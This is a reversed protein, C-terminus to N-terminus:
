VILYLGFAIVAIGLFEYREIHRKKREFLGFRDIILSFISQGLLGFAITLTAGLSNFCITNSFVLFLGLLGSIYYHWPYEFRLRPVTKDKIYLMMIAILGVIHILVMSTAIGTWSALTGNVMIMIAILAGASSALLRNM